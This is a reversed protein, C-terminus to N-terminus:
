SKAARRSGQIKHDVCVSPLFLPPRAGLSRIVHISLKGLLCIPSSALCMGAM